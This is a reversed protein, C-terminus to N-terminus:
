LSIACGIFVTEIRKRVKKLLRIVPKQEKHNKRLPVVLQIAATEFLNIHHQRGIYGKDGTRICNTFLEKVDSLYPIDHM